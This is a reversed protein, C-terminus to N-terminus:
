SLHARQECGQGGAWSRREDLPGVRALWPRARDRIADHRADDNRRHRRTARPPRLGRAYRLFTVFFFGGAGTKRPPRSEIQHLRPPEFELCGRQLRPARGVSSRGWIWRRRVLRTDSIGTKSGKPVRESAAASPIAESEAATGARPLPTTSVIEVCASRETLALPRRECFLNLFARPSSSKRRRSGHHAM